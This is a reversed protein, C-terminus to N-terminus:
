SQIQRKADQIRMWETRIDDRAKEIAREASEAQAERRLLRSERLDMENRAAFLRQRKEGIQKEKIKLDAADAKLRGAKLSAARSAAKADEFMKNAQAMIDYTEISAKKVKESQIEALRIKEDAESEAIEIAGLREDQLQRIQSVKKEQDELMSEWSSLKEWKEELGAKEVRFDERDQRLRLRKSEAVDEKEDLELERRNLSTEFTDLDRSRKTTEAEYKEWKGRLKESEEKVVALELEVKKAVGRLLTKAEDEASEVIQAARAEAARVNETLDDLERKRQAIRDEVRELKALPGLRASVEKLLKEAQAVESRVGEPTRQSALARKSPM